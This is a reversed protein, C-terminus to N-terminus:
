EDDKRSMFAFVVCIVVILSLMLTVAMASGLGGDAREIGDMDEAARPLFRLSAVALPTLAMSSIVVASLTAQVDAGIVGEAHAASYLVFAFEGGQALLAARQLAEDRPARTMRAVTQDFAGALRGDGPEFPGMNRLRGNLEEEELFVFRETFARAAVSYAM